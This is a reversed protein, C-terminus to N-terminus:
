IKHGSGAFIGNRKKKDEVLVGTLFFTLRRERKERKTGRGEGKERWSERVELEEKEYIMRMLRRVIRMRILGMM